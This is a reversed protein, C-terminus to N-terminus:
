PFNLSNSAIYASCYESRPAPHRRIFKPNFDLRKGCHATAQPYSPGPAFFAPISSAEERLLDPM